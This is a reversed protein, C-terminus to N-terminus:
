QARPRSQMDVEEACKPCPAYKTQSSEGISKRVLQQMGSFADRQDIDPMLTDMMVVEFPKYARRAMFEPMPTSTCQHTQKPEQVVLEVYLQSLQPEPVVLEVYLRSSQPETAVLRAYLPSLKDRPHWSCVAETGPPISLMKYRALRLGPTDESWTGKDFIVELHRLTTRSPHSRNGTATGDVEESTNHRRVTSNEMPVFLTLKDKFSECYTDCSTVREFYESTSVYSIGRNRYKTWALNSAAYRNSGVDGPYRKASIRYAALHPAVCVANVGSVYCTLITSHFRAVCQMPTSSKPDWILQVKNPGIWGTSVLLDTYNDTRYPRELKFGLQTMGSILLSYKTRDGVCFFDWDSEGGIVGPVFYELARSGALFSQTFTLCTLLRMPDAVLPAFYVLPSARQKFLRTYAISLPELTRGKYKSLLLDCMHLPLKLLEYWESFECGDPATGNENPSNKVREEFASALSDWEPGLSPTTDM